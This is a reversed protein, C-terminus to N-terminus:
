KIKLLEPQTWPEKRDGITKRIQTVLGTDVPTGTNGWERRAYTLICAIQEDSLIGFPPMDLNYSRGAVKIPGHAGNIAVRIMRTAPGNVWESEALPPALGELGRGHTQHCASCTGTFLTRGTEFRKQEASTLAPPVYAAIAGKKGAWVISRNIRNLATKTTPNTREVISILEPSESPLTLQKLPSVETSSAIGEIMAQSQFENSISTLLILKTVNQTNRSNTTGKALGSIIKHNQLTAEKFSPDKVLADLLAYERGYIGSFLADLIYTNNPNAKAISASVLDLKLDGIEGLTLVLQQQVENSLDDKLKLVAALLESNQGGKLLPESIRLAATRVYAEPDRLCGTLTSSDSGSLGELTCLAHLRGSASSDYLAQHRLLPLISDDDKEILLRQATESRWANTESLEAVLQTTSELDLRPFAKPKQNDAVVRYIRGMHPNKTLDRDEAQSRLYSTLSIKDEILGRYFDVIYLGGDPGTTLNVPRFREDVSAIFEEKFYAEKSAVTGNPYSVINRKILNAAPECVFANGYFEAPLDSARYIWPACAATFEKLKGDRMTEPRYARNTGPTVRIPWVLQNEAVLVNTGLARSYNPNRGLYLSPIVDARLQDSNSNHYLHGFNDQSLGWEGRFTTQGTSWQGKFYKFKKTYGASYIWNDLAWLMSNPSREPNALEPRKPDVQIGFDDAILLGSDAKGKGNSDRWFKLYPPAGVLVGDAVLQLARPMIINDVFVTSKTYQGNEDRDSLVVIRGTPMDEGTADFDLMYGRLEVVWCRGDPGFQIAVPDEILPESAVLELHYGKQVKFSKLAEKPSLPIAPPILSKPVLSSQIVGPKDLTDGLQAHLSTGLLLAFLISIIRM